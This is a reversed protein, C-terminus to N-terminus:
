LIVGNTEARQAPLAGLVKGFVRVQDKAFDWKSGHAEAWEVAEKLKAADMGMEAPAKRQWAGASPFYTTRKPEAIQGALAPALVAAVLPLTLLSRRSFWNTTM